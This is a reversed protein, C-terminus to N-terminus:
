FKLFLKAYFQLTNNNNCYNIIHPDLTRTRSPNSQIRIQRAPTRKSNSRNIGEKKERNIGHCLWLPPTITNIKDNCAQAAM